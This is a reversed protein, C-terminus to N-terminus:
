SKWKAIAKRIANRAGVSCFWIIVFLFITTLPHAMIFFLVILSLAFIIWETISMKLLYAVGDSIKTGLTNFFSM